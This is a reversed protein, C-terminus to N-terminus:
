SIIINENSIREGKNDIFYAKLKIPLVKEEVVEYQFFTLYTIVNTLRKSLSTLGVNVKKTGM